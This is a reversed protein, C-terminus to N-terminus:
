DRVRALVETFPDYELEIKIEYLGEEIQLPKHEQHILEATRKVQIYTQGADKFVLVQGNIRHNHGTAEGYALIKDTSPKASKPISKIEKIDVDGQRYNKMIDGGKAKRYSVKM